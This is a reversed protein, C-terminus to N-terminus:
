RQFQVRNRFPRYTPAIQDFSTFQKPKEAENEASAVRSEESNAAASFAIPRDIDDRVVASDGQADANTITSSTLSMTTVVRADQAQIVETLKKAQDMAQQMADGALSLRNSSTVNEVSPSAVKLDSKEARDVEEPIDGQSNTRVLTASAKVQDTAQEVGADIASILEPEGEELLYVIWGNIWEPQSISNLVSELVVGAFIRRLFLRAPGCNYTKPDLFAQLLDDAAALLKREQEKVDAMNSLASEPSRDIYYQLAEGPDLEDVAPDMMARSLESLFVIFISTFNTLFNLLADAPRKRAQHSSFAVIFSVLTQKAAEPFSTEGPLIPDYWFQVYDRVITDTLQELAAATEPPLDTYDLQKRAAAKLATEARADFKDTDAKRVDMWDMLRKAVDIGVEQRRRKEDVLSHPGGHQREWTAHLAVGAILGIILLGFRGLLIYLVAAAGVACAILTENNANSLFDLIGSLFQNSQTAAPKTAAVPQTDDATHPAVTEAM